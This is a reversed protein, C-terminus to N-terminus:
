PELGLCRKYARQQSEIGLEATISRWEGAAADLAAQPEMEGALAATVVRDLAALYRHAGPIRPAYLVSEGSMSQQVAEVYASALQEPIGPPVWDLPSGTQSQRFLTTQTTATLTRASKAPSALWVLLQVAADFQSTSASVVGLRGAAGVLTVRRAGETEAAEWQSTDPRFVQTSGPLPACAVLAPDLAPLEVGALKPPLWFLGIAARGEFFARAADINTLTKSASPQKREGVMEELARVYPESAILPEMSDMSFVASYQNPHQAYAAARALFTLSAWGDGTPAVTGLWASRDATKAAHSDEAFHTALKHYADWTDPPPLQDRALLDSRVACVLAPTGLPIAFLRSGWTADRSKPIELIDPWDLDTRALLTDPLPQILQAEALTGLLPSPIIALDGAFSAASEVVARDLPIVELRAGTASQWEGKIRGIADALAVDDVVALKLDVNAFPLAAPASEPESASNGCGSISLALAVITLCTIFELPRAHRRETHVRPLGGTAHPNRHEIADHRM